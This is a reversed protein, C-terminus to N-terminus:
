HKTGHKRSRGAADPSVAANKGLAYENLFTGQATVRTDPAPDDDHKMSTVVHHVVKFGKTPKTEIAQIYRDETLHPDVEVDVWRDAAKAPVVIDKPLQVVLDPPAIHWKELDEFQRPPPMDAPNGKPAGSDVWKVITAIEADSLSVD